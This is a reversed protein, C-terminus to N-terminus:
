LKRLRLKVQAGDVPTLKASLVYEARENTQVLRFLGNNFNFLSSGATLGAVNGTNVAGTGSGLIYEAGEVEVEDGPEISCGQGATEPLELRGQYVHDALSPGGVAVGRTLFGLFVGNPTAPVAKTPDTAHEQMALGRIAAADVIRSLNVGAGPNTIEHSPM